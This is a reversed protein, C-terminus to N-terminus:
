AIIKADFWVKYSAMLYRQLTRQIVMRVNVRRSTRSVKGVIDEDQQCSATLPNMAYGVSDGDQSILLWVHHVAHLKPYLPYLHYKNQRFCDGALASYTQLFNMGRSYVFKCEEQDLWLPANYLFSLAANLDRAGERARHLLGQSDQPLDTLLPVLWKMLNRTLAGKSWNGTAGTADNYSVLYASIKSVHCSTRESRCWATYHESLWAFREDNNNAPVVLLALQLTSAVYSKGVGLHICHWLDPKFYSGRDNRDYPLFKLPAPLQDFPDRVAITDRWAPDHSTDECPYNNTGALCLHCVGPPAKRAAGRKVTTNWSRKLRGCKQLYPMDGKVGLLCVRYTIGTARDLIGTKLIDSLEKSLEEMMDHFVEPDSAYFSKPMVSVVFRTTYTHGAFNIQLSREHRPRKLRKKDFGWGLISQLSTVMLASKKLTRGEDGHLYMGITTAPDFSPDEFLSFTPHLQEYKKWFDKWTSGVHRLEDCRLGSLMYLLGNNVLYEFWSKPSIWPVTKGRIALETIPLKLRTGHKDVISQVDRESNKYNVKAWDNIGSRHAQGEGMESVVARATEIQSTCSAKALRCLIFLM